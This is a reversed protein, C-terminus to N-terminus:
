KSNELLSVGEIEDFTTWASGNVARLAEVPGDRNSAILNYVVGEDDVLIIKATQVEGDPFSLVLVRDVNAELIEIIEHRSM